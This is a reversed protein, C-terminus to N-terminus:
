TTLTALREVGHAPAHLVLEEAVASALVVGEVADSLEQQGSGIRAVRHVRCSSSAAPAAGRNPSGSSWTRPAQSAFSDTRSTKRVSSGAM